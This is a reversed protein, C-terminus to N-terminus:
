RRLKALVKKLARERVWDWTTRAEEVRLVLLLVVFVAFAAATPVAVYVLKILEYMVSISGIRPGKPERVFAVNDLWFDVGPPVDLGLYADPNLQLKGGAGPPQPLTETAFIPHPAFASLPIRYTKRKAGAGIPIDAEWAVPLAPEARAGAQEEDARDGTADRQDPGAGREGSDRRWPTQLETTLSLRVSCAVDARAKFTLLSCSRLEYPGLWRSVSRGDLSKELHLALEPQGTREGTDDVRPERVGHGTTERWEETTPGLNDLPAYLEGGVGLRVERLILTTLERRAQPTPTTDRIWLGVVEPQSKGLGFDKIGVELRERKGAPIKLPEHRFSRRERTVLEVTLEAPHSCLAEFAIRRIRGLAFDSLDRRLGASRRPSRRYRAMLANQGDIADAKGFVEKLLAADKGDARSVIRFEDVNDGEWDRAEVNFTDIMVEHRRYPDLPFLRTLLMYSGYSAGIVGMTAVLAKALFVTTERWPLIKVHFRMVFLLIVNKLARAVVYVTAVVAFYGFGLWEIGIFLFLIHFGTSLFGIITPTWMRQMAFFSQQIPNEIAFFPLSLIYLGLADGARALHYDSWDGSEFLLQIIPRRLVVILAALPVFFVLVGRITRTMVHAFDGWKQQAALECLHPLIAVSLAAIVLTNPAEGVKRAYKLDSFVGTGTFSGFLNTVIDRYKAFLIGFLLPVALSAFKAMPTTRGRTRWWLLMLYAAVVAVLVVQQLALRAGESPLSKEFRDCLWLGAALVVVHAALIAVEKTIRVASLAPLGLRYFRVKSRLGLLHTLLMGVTSIVFAVALADLLRQTSLGVVAAVLFLAAWIIKQVADGAAAYSFISYSNLLAYTVSALCIAFVGPFMWRMLRVSLTTQQENFGEAFLRIVQPAFVLGAATLVALVLITLNLVTNGFRRAAEEGHRDIEEKFIPVVLPIFIKLCMTQLLFVVTETVFFYADSEPGSGFLRGVLLTILFGGFKWFLQFFIVVFMARLIRHGISESAAKQIADPV